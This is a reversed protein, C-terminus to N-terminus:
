KDGNFLEEKVEFSLGNLEKDIEAKARALTESAAKLEKLRSDTYIEEAFLLGYETTLMIARLNRGSKLRINAPLGKKGKALGVLVIYPLFLKLRDWIWMLM